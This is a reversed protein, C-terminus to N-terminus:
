LYWSPTQDGGELTGTDKDRSQSVSVKIEENILRSLFLDPDGSVTGCLTSLPRSYVSMCYM